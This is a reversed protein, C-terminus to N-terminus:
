DALDTGVETQVPFVVQINLPSRRQQSWTLTFRDQELFLKDFGHMKFPTRCVTAIYPHNSIVGGFVSSQAVQGPKRIVPVPLSSNNAVRAIVRKNFDWIHVYFHDQNTSFGEIREGPEPTHACPLAYAMKSGFVSILHSQHHPFCYTHQPGWDSWPIEVSAQSQIVQQSFIVMDIVLIVPWAESFMEIVMIQSELPPVYGPMLDLRAATSHFSPTTRIVYSQSSYHKLRPLYTIRRQPSGDLEQLTYLILLGEGSIIVITQRDVLRFTAERGGPQHLPHSETQGKRWDIVQIFLDQTQHIYYLIVVRDGCIAPEDVIDVVYRGPVDFAHKCELSACPSDPYPPQSLALWFEVLFVHHNQGADIVVFSIQSSVTIVLDQLPDVIISRLFQHEASFNHTPWKRSLTISANCDRVFLNRQAWMWWFGCKMYQRESFDEDDTGAAVEEFVTKAYFDSRWLSALKKLSSMKTPVDVSDLTATETFGQAYLELKYQIDVSNRAADCVTKCTTACHCIDRPTLLFLIHCILEAPLSLFGVAM